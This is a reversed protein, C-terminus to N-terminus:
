AKLNRLALEARNLSDELWEKAHVLHAYDINTKYRDQKIDKYYQIEQQVSHLAKHIHQITVETTKITESKIM